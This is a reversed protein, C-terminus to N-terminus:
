TNDLLNSSKYQISLELRIQSGLKQEKGLKTPTVQQEAKNGTKDHTTSWCNASSAM